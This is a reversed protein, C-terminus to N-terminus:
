FEHGSPLVYLNNSIEHNDLLKKDITYKSNFSAFIKITKDDLNLIFKIPDEFIFYNNELLCNSMNTFVIREENDFIFDLIFYIAGPSIFNVFKAPKNFKKFYHKITGNEIYVYILFNENYYLCKTTTDKSTESEYFNIFNIMENNKFKYKIVFQFMEKNVKNEILTDGEGLYQYDAFVDEYRYYEGYVDDYDNNTLQIFNCIKEYFEDSETSTNNMSKVKDFKILNYESSKIPFIQFSGFRDAIKQLFEKDKSLQDLLLFTKPRKGINYYNFISLNQPNPEVILSKTSELYFDRSILSAENQENLTLHSHILSIVNHNLQPYLDKETM